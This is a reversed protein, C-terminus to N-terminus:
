RHRDTRCRPLPSTHQQPVAGAKSCGTELLHLKQAICPTCLSSCVIKIFPPFHAVRNIAKNWVPMSHTETQWPASSGVPVVM